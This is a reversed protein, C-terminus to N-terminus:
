RIRFNRRLFTPVDLDQGGELTPESKEFRGRSIPEFQMEEQRAPAAKESSKAPPPVRPAPPVPALPAPDLSLAAALPAPAPSEDSGAEAGIAEPLVPEEPEPEPSPAPPPALPERAIAPPRKRRPPSPAAAVPAPAPAREPAAVPAAVPAGVSSLIAVSVRGAQAPDVGLGLLLQTRDNIHRGFEGMAGEIEALRLDPGGSLSVVVASADALMRGRDLLPSRLAEAFADHVRNDGGSEGFGFLCRAGRHRLAALLEDLGIRILGPRGVIGAIARIAESILRDTAAFAEHVGARASVTEGMRDNEFCVVSHCCAELRELAAEAQDARRRGEFSFPLTVLAVTLAGAERAKRAILPAAGSGTGGGLGAVVFVLPVGEVAKSLEAESEIAAEEGLDPDGGAGLGRTVERGIQLKDLAVSASLSQVDTNVVALREKAFGDLVARDLVNAGAGGVGIVRFEVPEMRDIRALTEPELSIM